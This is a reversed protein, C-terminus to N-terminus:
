CSLSLVSNRLPVLVIMLVYRSRQRKPFCLLSWAVVRVRWWVCEGGCASALCAFRFVVRSFDSAGSDLCNLMVMSAGESGWARIVLVEEDCALGSCSLDSRVIILSGSEYRDDISVIM